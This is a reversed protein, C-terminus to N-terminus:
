RGPARQTQTPIKTNEWFYSRLGGTFGFLLVAILGACFFILTPLVVRRSLMSIERDSPSSARQIIRSNARAGRTSKGQRECAGMVFKARSPVGATTSSQKIPDQTGQVSDSYQPGSTVDLHASASEGPSRGVSRLVADTNASMQPMRGKTIVADTKAIRLTKAWRGITEGHPSTHIHM